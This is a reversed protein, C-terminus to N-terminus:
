PLLGGLKNVVNLEMRFAPYYRGGEFTQYFNDLANIREAPTFAARVKEGNFGKRPFM